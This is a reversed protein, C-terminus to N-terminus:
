LNIDKVEPTQEEVLKAKDIFKSIITRAMVSPQYRPFLAELAEMDGKRLNLTHKQLEEGRAKAM